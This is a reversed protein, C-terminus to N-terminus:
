HQCHRCFSTIRQNPSIESITAGCRPCAQGGRRHVRLHDRYHDAPLGEKEMRDSVIPIAWELVSRMARYLHRLSDEAIDSRKRFPHIGAEWLIEDAYANGIGAICQENTLVNKIQGRYARLRQVFVDETLQESMADPGMESWRPVRAALADKASVLYAKGMLREDFYRLERGNDLALIFVTKARRRKEKRECYQFRGTLMAHVVLLSGNDFPFLLYKGRRELPQFIAGDLTAAFEEKSSRVVIPITVEVLGVKLGPLRRNYYARYGELDPIEPM